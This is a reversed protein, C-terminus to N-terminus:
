RGWRWAARAFASRGLEVGPTRAVEDFFEIHEDDFVNEVAMSVEIQPTPRWGIRVDFSEYGDVGQSEIESVARLVFDLDLSPAADIRAGISWQYDPEAGFANLSNATAPLDMDLWNGSARLRVREGAMWEIALEAGNATAQAENGYQLPLILRPPLGPAFIPAQPTQVLLKQYDHRFLALDIALQPDPRWRWGLEYADLQEADLDESGSIRLSTPVGPGPLPVDVASHLEFRSPTRAARSGATWFTHADTAQWLARLTPQFALGTYKFDELKAGAIVRVRDDAFHIEDQAYVSWQEHELSTKSFYLYANSSRQDDTVYRYGAGITPLHRGIRAMSHQLDVGLSTEDWRSPQGRDAWSYYSRLETQSQNGHDRRWGFGVASVIASAPLSANRQLAPDGLSVDSYQGDIAFQNAGVQREYRVGALSRDLDSTDGEFADADAHDAYLRLDGGAVASGYSMSAAESVDTGAGASVHLGRDEGARRTIINIVGNVANIGWLAGGPGRVVEIREIEDLPTFQEEWLVGSFITSYVSRGDVMVQLKNAFKSNFGRATVAWSRTSVRAVQLGPVTRLLDPISTAASRRIDERTIVFVAAAAESSAQARKAASTVTVDMTMLTALDLDALNESDAHVGACVTLLAISAALLHSRRAM